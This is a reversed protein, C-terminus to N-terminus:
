GSLPQVAALVARRQREAPPGCWGIQGPHRCPQPQRNRRLGRESRAQAQSPHRRRLSELSCGARPSTLIAQHPYTGPSIATPADDGSTAILRNLRWRFPYGHLTLGRINQRGCRPKPDNSGTEWGNLTPTHRGPVEGLSHGLTVGCTIRPQECVPRRSALRSVPRDSPIGHASTTNLQNGCWIGRTPSLHEGTQRWNGDADLPTRRSSRVCVWGRVPVGALHPRHM